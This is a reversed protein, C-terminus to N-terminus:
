TGAKLCHQNPHYKCDYKLIYINYPHVICNRNDHDFSDYNIRSNSSYFSSHGTTLKCSTSIEALRRSYLSTEGGARVVELRFGDLKIEYTWEPGEPIKAMPLCKMSEIFEASIRPTATKTAM